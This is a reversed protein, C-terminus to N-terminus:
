ASASSAGMDAGDGMADIMRRLFFSVIPVDSDFSVFFKGAGTFFGIGLMLDGAFRGFGAIGM